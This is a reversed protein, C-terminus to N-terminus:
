DMTTPIYFLVVKIAILNFTKCSILCTGMNHGLFKVELCKALSMFIYVCFSKTYAHDYYCLELNSAIGIDMLLLISLCTIIYEDLPISSLLLFTCVVSVFVHIFNVFTILISYALYLSHM